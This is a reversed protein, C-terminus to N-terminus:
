IWSPRFRRLFVLLLLLLETAVVALVTIIGKRPWSPEEPLDPAGFIVDRSVGSLSSKLRILNSLNDDRKTILGLIPTALEGQLSQAVLTLQSLAQILM